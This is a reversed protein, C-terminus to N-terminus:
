SNSINPKNKASKKDAGKVTLMPKSQVSTKPLFHARVRSNEGKTVAGLKEVQSLVFGEGESMGINPVEGVIIDGPPNVVEMIVVDSFESSAPPEMTKDQM